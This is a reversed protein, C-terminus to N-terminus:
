RKEPATVNIGDITLSGSAHIIQFHGYGTYRLDITAGPGGALGGAPGPRTTPRSTLITSDHGKDFHGIAAAMTRGNAGLVTSAWHRPPGCPVWTSGWDRSVLLQSLEEGPQRGAALIVREESSFGLCSWFAVPGREIWHEGADTSLYFRGGPPAQENDEFACLTAGDASMALGTWRRERDTLRPTWTVGEDSSTYIFGPAAKGYVDSEGVAAAMRHGDASMAAHYWHRQGERPTWTLGGDTSTYIFGGEANTGSDVAVLKLGDASCAARAWNRRGESSRWTFGFNTSCYIKGFAATAVIREGKASMACGNWLRKPGCDHWTTGGNTSVYVYGGRQRYGFEVAVLKSGDASTALCTWQRDDEHPVWGWGAKGGGVSETLIMQNSNQMLRWGGNAPGALRLVDGSAPAPPLTITVETRAALRYGHNAEAQFTDASTTSWRISEVGRDPSTRDAQRPGLWLGGLLGLTGAVVVGAALATATPNRSVWRSFQEWSGPPTAHIAQGQIWRDLDDALAHASPYRRAPQKELCKLCITELEADIAAHLQRPRIPERHKVREITEGHSQGHFPPQGTLLAYLVAGLGYVDSAATLDRTSGSAQEPPMFDPTGLIAHTVTQGTNREVFKALGFDTLHPEGQADLLINGPKIDRHLIGRQHAHEVARALKALLTAARRADLAPAGSKPEASLLEALSDGEILKMALFPQGAHEGIEYIPVIHPHDLRAAAEAETRFRRRESEGAAHGARILKVAVKRNLSVQRAHFVIGMGGEAIEGLLVYDGFYRITPSKV